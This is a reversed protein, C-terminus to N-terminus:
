NSKDTYLRYALFGESVNASTIVSAGDGFFVADRRNRDTIKSFTDAGIVVVNNYTVSAIYQIAVSIAFLFGSWVANLDFAAANYANLEHQVFAATSPSKRDPSAPAVIILDIVKSNLGADDIARQGAISALNSTAQQASAVRRELVGVNDFVWKSNTDIIRKM